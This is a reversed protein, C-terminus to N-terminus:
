ERKDNKVGCLVFVSLVLPVMVFLALILWVNGLHNVTYLFADEEPHPLMAFEMQLRLQINNLNSISGLAEMGWRSIMLASINESFGKLSFLIGSFILQVILIYPAMVSAVEAKKVLSSILIGMTDAAFMILLLTIYYELFADELILGEIPMENGYVIKIGFLSCSLIITQVVCLGLQVLANAAVYCSIRLNGSVYERKINAREKVVIQISNFMGGWIAACVLVFCAAKTGEYHVFMNEGAIFVTIIAALVPFMLSIVFSRKERFLNRLGQLLNEKLDRIVSIKKRTQM